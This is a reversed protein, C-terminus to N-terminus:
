KELKHKIKKVLWKSFRKPYTPPEIINVAQELFVIYSENNSIPILYSTKKVVEMDSYFPKKTEDKPLISFLSADHVRIEFPLSKLENRDLTSNNNPDDPNLEFVRVTLESENDIETKNYLTSTKFNSLNFYGIEEKEDNSLVSFTSSDKEAIQFSQSKRKSSDTSDPYVKQEAGNSISVSLTKGDGASIPIWGKESIILKCNEPSPIFVVKKLFFMFGILIAASGGFKLAGLNFSNSEGIGGLFQYLISALAVSFLVLSLDKQEMMFFIIGGALGIVILVINAILETNRSM